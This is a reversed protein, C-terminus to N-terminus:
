QESKKWSGLKFYFECAIHALDTRKGDEPAHTQSAPTCRAVVNLAIRFRQASRLPKEEEPLRFLIRYANAM